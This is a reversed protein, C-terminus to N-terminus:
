YKDRALVSHQAALTPPSTRFVIMMRGDAWSDPTDREAEGETEKCRVFRREPINCLNSM